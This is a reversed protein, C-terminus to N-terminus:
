ESVVTVSELVLWRIHALGEELVKEVESRIDDRTKTESGPALRILIVVAAKKNEHNQAVEFM